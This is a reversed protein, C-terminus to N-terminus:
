VYKSDDLPHKLLSVHDDFPPGHDCVFLCPVQHRHTLQVDSVFRFCVCTNGVCSGTKSCANQCRDVSPRVCVFPHREDCRSVGASSVNTPYVLCSQEDDIGASLWIASRQATGDLDEYSILEDIKAQVEGLLFTSLVAARETQCVSVAQDHAIASVHYFFCRSQQYTWGLPCNDSLNIIVRFM